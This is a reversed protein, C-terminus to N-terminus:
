ILGADHLAAAMSNNSVQAALSQEQFDALDRLSANLKQERQAQRNRRAKVEVPQKISSLINYGWADTKVDAFDLIPPNAM